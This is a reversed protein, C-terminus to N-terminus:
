FGVFELTKIVKRRRGVIELKGSLKRSWKIEKRHNIIKIDSRTRLHPKVCAVRASIRM